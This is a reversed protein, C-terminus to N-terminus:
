NGWVDVWRRRTKRRREWRWVPFSFCSSVSPEEACPLDARVSSTFVCVCVCFILSKGSNREPGRQMLMSTMWISALHNMHQWDRQKIKKKRAEEGEKGLCLKRPILPIILALLSPPTTSRPGWPPPPPPLCTQLGPGGPSSTSGLQNTLTSGDPVSLHSELRNEKRLHSPPPPADPSVPHIVCM